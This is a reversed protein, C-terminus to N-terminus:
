WLAALMFSPSEEDDMEGGVDRGTTDELSYSFPSGFLDELTSTPSIGGMMVHDMCYTDGGHPSGSGNEYEPVFPFGEMGDKGTGEDAGMLFDSAHAAAAENLLKFYEEQAKMNAEHLQEASKSANASLSPAHVPAAQYADCAASLAKMHAAATEACAAYKDANALQSPAHVPPTFRPPYGGLSAAAHPAQAGHFGEGLGMCLPAACFSNFMAPNLLDMPDVAATYATNVSAGGGSSRIRKRVDDHSDEEAIRSDYETNQPHRTGHPVKGPVIPGTGDQFVLRPPPAHMHRGLMSPKNGKPNSPSPFHRLAGKSLLDWRVSEETAANERPSSAYDKYQNNTKANAGKQSIAAADYAMGADRATSFSGLWRRESGDRIEAAYSGWKRLRVGIFGTQNRCDGGDAAPPEAGGCSTPSRGQAHGGTSQGGGGSRKRKGGPGVLASDDDTCPGFAQEFDAGNLLQHLAPFTDELGSGSGHKAATCAASQMVAALKHMDIGQYYEM